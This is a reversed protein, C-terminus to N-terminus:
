GRHVRQRMAEMGCAATTDWHTTCCRHKKASQSVIMM